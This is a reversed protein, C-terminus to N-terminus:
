KGVLRMVEGVVGELGRVRRGVEEGRWWERGGRGEMGEGGVVEEWERVAEEVRAAVGNRGCGRLHAGVRGAFHPVSVGAFGEAFGRSPWVGTHPPAGDASDDGRLRRLVRLLSECTRALDAAASPDLAIALSGADLSASPPEASSEASPRRSGPPSSGFAVAAAAAVVPFSSAPTNSPTNPQAPRGAPSRPTALPSTPTTPTQLHAPLRTVVGAPVAYGDQSVMSMRDQTRSLQRLSAGKKLVPSERVPVTEGPMMPTTPHVGAAIAAGFITPGRMVRGDPPQLQDPRLPVPKPYSQSPSPTTFRSDGGGPSPGRFGGGFERPPQGRVGREITPVGGGGADGVSMVNGGAGADRGVLDLVSSRWAHMRALGPHAPDVTTPASRTGTPGAAPVLAPMTEEGGEEEADPDEDGDRPALLAMSRRSFGPADGGRASMRSLLFTWRRFEAATPARLVYPRSPTHLVFTRSAKAEPDRTPHQVASEVLQIAATPIIWPGPPPYGNWRDLTDMMNNLHKETGHSHQQSSAQWPEAMTVTKKETSNQRSHNPSARPPGPSGTRPPGPSGTRPPGPSGTRPPTRTGGGERGDGFAPTMTETYDMRTPAVIHGARPGHGYRTPADDGFSSAFLEEAMRRAEDRLDQSGRKDTAAPPRSGSRLADYAADLQSATVSGLGSDAAGYESYLSPHRPLHTSPNGNATTTTTTTFSSSATSIPRIDSSSSSSSSPHGALAAARPHRLM